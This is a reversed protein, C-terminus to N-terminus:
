GSVSSLLTKDIYALNGLIVVIISSPLPGTLLKVSTKKSPSIKWPYKSTSEDSYLRIGIVTGSRMAQGVIEENNENRIKKISSLFVWQDPYPKFNCPNIFVSNGSNRPTKQLPLAILNGFGGKPMTDQNPILRDYSDLGM